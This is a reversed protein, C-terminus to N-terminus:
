EESRAADIVDLLRERAPRLRKNLDGESEAPGFLAVLEGRALGRGLNQFGENIPPPSGTVLPPTVAESTGPPELGELLYIIAEKM